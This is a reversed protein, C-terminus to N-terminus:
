YVLLQLFGRRYEGRASRVAPFVEPALHVREREHEAGGHAEQALFAILCAMSSCSKADADLTSSGIGIAKCRLRKDFVAIIVPVGTDCRPKKKNCSRDKPVNRSVHPSTSQLPFPLMVFAM